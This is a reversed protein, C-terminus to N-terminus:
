GFKKKTFSLIMGTAFSVSVISSGGYSVFPLTMGTNPLLNIAVGMNVAAQFFIQFTLGTIALLIFFDREHVARYLCRLTLFCYLFILALCFILGFEEGAVSFIFDTHSDPLIEKVKGQGPGTGFIGGNEFAQLSKTTQYNDGSGADLFVDIRTRVHDFIFYAAILGILGFVSGAIVFIINLGGVVLQTFWILIISLTMGLDPQRIVFFIVTFLLLASITYGPFDKEINKRTLIWATLVAFFPKIMESPQVSFGLIRIWRQAGKTEYGVFEVSVLLALCAIFGLVALRRTTVVNFTSITIMVALGFILYVVQRKVFYFSEFGLRQAVAPSSAMLLAIGLAILILVTSLIYRDVASWWRTVIKRKTNNLNM